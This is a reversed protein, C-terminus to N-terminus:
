VSAAKETELRLRKAEKVVREVRRTRRRGGVFRRASNGPGPAQYVIGRRAGGGPALLLAMKVEGLMLNMGFTGGQSSEVVVGTPRHELRCGAMFKKRDRIAEVGLPCGNQIKAYSFIPVDMGVIVFREYRRGEKTTMKGSLRRVELNVLEYQDATIFKGVLLDGPEFHEYVRNLDLGGSTEVEMEVWPTYRRGGSTLSATSSRYEPHIHRLEFMRAWDLQQM